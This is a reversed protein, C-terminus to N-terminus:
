PKIGEIGHLYKAANKFDGWMLGNAYETRVHRAKQEDTFHEGDDIIVYDKIDPHQSLWRAVETGRAKEDGLEDTRWDPHLGGNFGYQRLHSEIAHQGGRGVPHRNLRWTSILVFRVAQDDSGMGSALMNLMGVAERDLAHMIGNPAYFYQGYHARHTCLVGDIDLFIIKM